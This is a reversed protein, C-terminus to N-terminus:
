LTQRIRDNITEQIFAELTWHYKHLEREVAPGLLLIPCEPSLYEFCREQLIKKMSTYDIRRLINFTKDIDDKVTYNKRLNM